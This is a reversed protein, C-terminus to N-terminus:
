VAVCLCFVRMVGYDACRFVLCFVCVYYLCVCLGCVCVCVALNFVCFLLGCV